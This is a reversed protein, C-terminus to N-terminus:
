IIGSARQKTVYVNCGKPWPILKLPTYVAKPKATGAETSRGSRPM